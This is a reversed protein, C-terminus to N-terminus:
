GAPRMSSTRPTSCRSSGPKHPRTLAPTFTSSRHGLAWLAAPALTPNRALNAAATATDSPATGGPPTAQSLLGACGPSAPIACASLLDALTNLTALTDNKAGNNSDTVVGGAKGTAPDALNFFGAAANELGPSPGSVAGGHFFQALAYAAAVTTLENVTVTSLTRPPVGGSKGVVGVVSLLRLRASDKRTASVYLVGNAPPSYSITFKGNPDATADGLKRASTQAAAYLAVEAGPLPKSVVVVTGNLTAQTAAAATTSGGVLITVTLSVLVVAAGRRGISAGPRKM